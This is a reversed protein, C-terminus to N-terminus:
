LSSYDPMVGQQKCSSCHPRLIGHELDIGIIEGKTGPCGSHQQIDVEDGIRFERGRIVLVVEEGPLSGEGAGGKELKAM